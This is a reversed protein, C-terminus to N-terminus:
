DVWDQYHGGSSGGNRHEGERVGQLVAMLERNKEVLEQVTAYYYEAKFKGEGAGKAARLNKEVEKATRLFGDGLYKHAIM